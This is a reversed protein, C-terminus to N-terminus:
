EGQNMERILKLYEDHVDQDIMGPVYGGQEIQDASGKIQEMLELLREATNGRAHVNLAKVVAGDEDALARVDYIDLVWALAWVEAWRLPRSGAEVKAVTTQRWPDPLLDSVREAVQRQSLGLRERRTRVQRGTTHALDGLLMKFRDSEGTENEM